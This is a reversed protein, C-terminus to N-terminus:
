KSDQRLIKIFSDAISQLIINCSTAGADYVGKSREGLRSARGKKAILNKTQEWGDSSAKKMAMLAGLYDEGNDQANKYAEAAPVLVDILTKDGVEAGGIDQVATAACKLMSGFTSETIIEDDGVTESLAEFFIGYLPGMSGGIREMLITSIVKTGESFSYTTDQLKDAAQSFGKNMNIGHDGDGILGDIESLYEANDQINKILDSVATGAENNIIQM